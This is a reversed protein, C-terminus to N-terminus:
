TASFIDRPVPFFYGKSCSFIDRPVLFFIGQFLFFYGKPCIFNDRPVSNLTWEVPCDRLTIHQNKEWIAYDADHTHQQHLTYAIHLRRYLTIHQLDTPFVIRTYSPLREILFSETILAYTRLRSFFPLLFFFHVIQVSKKGMELVRQM